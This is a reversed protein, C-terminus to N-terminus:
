EIVLRDVFSRSGQQIKILYTGASLDQVSLQQTANPTFTRYAIVKGRLDFVQVLAEEGEPIRINLLESAPNPFMTIGNQTKADAAYSPAQYNDNFKVERIEMDFGIDLLNDGKIKFSIAHITTPDFVLQNNTSTLQNFGIEYTEWSSTPEILFSFEDDTATVSRTHLVVEVEQGGNNKAKFVLQNFASLDQSGEGLALTRFLTFENKVLGVVRASREVPYEDSDYYDDVHAYTEFSYQTAGLESYSTGWPGDAFYLVDRGGMVDNELSFGADFVYGLNLEVFSKGNASQIPLMEGFAIRNGNEVLAYNGSVYVENANPENDLYLTFTGQNYTGKTVYVSPYSPTSVNIYTVSSAAEMLNMMKEVLKRTQDPSVSWVQYNFISDTASFQYNENSWQNDLLLDGTATKAVAFSIAYDTEGNEQKIKAMLFMKGNINIPTVEKLTGGTLRDCIIKTHDYVTGNPSRLALIAALRKQTPTFYDVSLVEEANTVDILDTPSTIAAPANDPGQSPIFHALTGNSNGSSKLSNSLLPLASPNHYFDTGEILRQYNRAALKNAMFGNSEIGGDNGGSCTSDTVSAQSYNNTSNGDEQDANVFFAVNDGSGNVTVKIKLKATDGNNIQPVNWFGTAPDFTGSTATYSVYTFNNSLIDVIEVNTMPRYKFNRAEITFEVTDGAGVSTKNVNKVIQLDFYCRQSNSSATATKGNLKWVLNSGSFPVEFNAWKRGPLFTTPQGRDKPSPVFENQNSIPINVTTNNPNYYGFVATYGGSTDQFVCELVPSIKSNKQEVWVAPSFESTSNNLTATTTITDNVQLGAPVPLTFSFKNADDEGVVQGNVPGPGYAATGNDNDNTSGEILSTIFTEGQHQTAGPYGAAHFFEIKSGPRAYGKVTFNGNQIYAEQIVPYNLLGNGGNDADNMENLTYFPATGTKRLDTSSTLDIGIGLSKTSGLSSSISGNGYISNETITNENANDIVLVGSGYNYAIINKKIINDKGWIRFGPTENEFKGNEILTNNEATNQGIGYYYDIGCGGNERLYNFQIVAGAAKREYGIGDLNHRLQANFSIDNYQILWGLSGNGGANDTYVGHNGAYGITNYQITVSDAGHSGINYSENVVPPVDYKDAPTGLTNYQIVHGKTTPYLYVNGHWDNHQYGFGYIAIGQLTIYNANLKLGMNHTSGNEIEIEPGDVQSLMVGDVGVPGAYGLMTTNTNGGFQAQTLGDIVLNSATIEPLESSTITITFVGRSADYGNDTSPIEFALTDVSPDTNANQIAARLSGPGADQTNSVVVKKASALQFIFLSSFLLALKFYFSKM